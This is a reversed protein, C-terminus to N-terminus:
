WALYIEPTLTDGSKPMPLTAVILSSDASKERIIESLRM